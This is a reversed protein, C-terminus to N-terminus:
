AEIWERTGGPWDWPSRARVGRGEVRQSSQIALLLLPLRESVIERSTPAALSWQSCGFLCNLLSFPFVFVAEREGEPFSLSIAAQRNARRCEGSRPPLFCGPRSSIRSPAFPMTAVCVAKIPPPLGGSRNGVGRGSARTRFSRAWALCLRFSAPQSIAQPGAGLPASM